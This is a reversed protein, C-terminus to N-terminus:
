ATTVAKLAPPASALAPQAAEPRLRGDIKAGADIRISEHAIDGTIEASSEAIVSRAKITGDIRGRITAEQATLHGYLRGTVGQVMRTCTVNGHVAGDIHLEGAASVDGRIEVDAAIISLAGADATSTRRSANAPVDKSKWLM